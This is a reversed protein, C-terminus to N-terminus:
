DDDGEGISSKKLQVEAKLKRVNEEVRRRLIPNNQVALQAQAMEIQKMLDEIDEKTGQIQALRAKEDEDIEADDDEDDDEGDDGEISEDGSDEEPVPAPEAATEEADFAAELDAELDPDIDGDEEVMPQPIHGFYGEPNDDEEGEADDESYEDEDLQARGPSSGPAPSYMQSARGMDPDIMEFRTSIAADDAALLKEIADEVAEIANRSIGKRFRRKRAFHLPPTIGHPYQHTEKDIISPLPITKAQEEKDVKAFVWLMQCIDATKWWGRKDWSKMGEIICPLDVLTAAYPRGKIIVAARRGESHFFKMQINPGGQSIPVGIKKDNIAARLYECDEGPMMRLIFEEEIAPDIERDSAESDYGEGATPSKPQGGTNVKLKLKLSM